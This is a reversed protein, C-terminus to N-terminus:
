SFLLFSCKGTGTLVQSDPRALRTRGDRGADAQGNEVSLSFRTYSYFSTPSQYSDVFIYSTARPNLSSAHTHSYHFRGGTNIQQKM